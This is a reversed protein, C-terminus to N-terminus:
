FAKIDGIEEIEVPYGELSTPIKTELEENLVSVLIKICPENNCEGIATGVVGPITMLYPTNEELVKEISKLEKSKRINLHETKKQDQCTYLNTFVFLFITISFILRM